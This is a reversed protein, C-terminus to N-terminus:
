INGVFLVFQFPIVTPKGEEERHRFTSFMVRSPIFTSGNWTSSYNSTFTMGDQAGNLHAELWQRQQDLTVASGSSLHNTGDDFLEGQVDIVKTVGSLDLMLAGTADSSPMSDFDLQTSVVPEVSKVEGQSFTFTVNSSNTLTVDTM